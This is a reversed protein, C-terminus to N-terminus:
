PVRRPRPQPRPVGGADATAGPAPRRCAAFPVRAPLTRTGTGWQGGLGHSPEVVQRTLAGLRTHGKLRSSGRATPLNVVMQIAWTHEAEWEDREQEM